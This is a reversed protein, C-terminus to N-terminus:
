RECANLVLAAAGQLLLAFAFMLGALVNLRQLFLSTNRARAGAPEPSARWSVFASALAVAALAFTCSALWLTRRPCDLYPLIQGLQTSGAFALPGVTLGALRMARRHLVSSTM